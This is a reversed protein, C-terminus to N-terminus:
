KELNWIRLIRDSSATLVWRGDRSFAASWIQEASSGGLASVQRGTDMDWIRLPRDASQYRSSASLARNGDATFAVQIVANAHGDFRHLEQGNGIQWLRLTADNGGTLARRGDPSFCVCYVERAHGELCQLSRGNTLDWVRATHDYSGSLAERASPSFAVSTVWGNHGLLRRLEQGSEVDWLRVTQDWSGSLLRRGDPAFAVSSIKDTHGAFTRIQRGSALDWLRLTRDQGGSIARRGDPAFAVALVEDSHGELCRLEAGTAVDWLRVTKDASGSLARRGDPSFAICGILGTHGAFPRITAGSEDLGARTTASSGDEGLHFERVLAPFAGLLVPRQVTGGPVLLPGLTRSLAASQNLRRTFDDASLGAEAAALALDVTAEYRLATSFIPEPENASVGTKALAHLYRETDAEMLARLTAEPPYLSQVAERDEQSFANPNQAIHARVQDAKALLGRAHCNMCSLGAEVFRDPRNPDSVIEIAAREVRRGNGDVLMYGQLGNPLHFIIEGGAAVFSNQGPVPGLPHEFLNQREINDSFDYSRWYAGHGADHREILRNNRSVGSNNFGARRASAEEIDTLVDVRLQRELERDNSPLQLLDYYLSPRSATAVFWDGRVQALESGSVAALTDAEVSRYGMRYPYFSALRDWLRANWQYDRLDIRLITGAPDVAQPLTMRPHWSLSNILKGLAQRNAQMEAEPRGANYLHTLTLYRLFRRQRAPFQQQDALILRTIATDSLFTRPASPPSWGPAGAEIWHKLIAVETSSPRTKQNPPPMEGKWVRQYLKSEDPKGPVIRQRAVLLDRNLIESFGGKAAGEPGHCRACNAKLITMARGALESEEAGLVSSACALWL